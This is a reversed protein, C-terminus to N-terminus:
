GRDHLKQRHVFNGSIWRSVAKVLVLAGSTKGEHDKTGKTTIAKLPGWCFM